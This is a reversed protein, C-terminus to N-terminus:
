KKLFILHVLELYFCLYLCLFIFFFPTPRAGSGFYHTKGRIFTIKDLFYLLLLVSLPSSLYKRNIRQTLLPVFVGCLPLRLLHYIPQTSCLPGWWTQWIKSYTNKTQGRSHQKLTNMLIHIKMTAVADGMYVDKTTDHPIKSTWPSYGDDAM